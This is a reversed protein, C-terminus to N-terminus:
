VKWRRHTWMWQDPWQIINKEFFSLYAKTIEEVKTENNAFSDPYIPDAATIIHRNYAERRMMFPIIPCNQKIAFTAPGKAVSAKRGLFDMLLNGSPDHQDAVMAVLRNAKLSKYIDRLTSAKVPIVNVGMNERFGNIMKDFLPNSQVKAVVDLPYGNMAVWAAQLEWNGYHATVLIGGRGGKLIEKIYDPKDYTIMELLKERGIKDFRAQEVFTRAINQFVKEIILNIQDDSLNIASAKKINDFVIKKRSPILVSLLWGLRIAFRDAKEFSLSRAWAM